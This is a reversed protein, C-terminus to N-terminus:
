ANELRISPRSLDSASPLSQVFDLGLGPTDRMRLVNGTQELPGIGALLGLSTFDADEVDEVATEGALTLALQGSVEMLLHPALRAPSAEVLGAIELFPTIGGVRVVNPQLIDAAGATLLDRFRHITHVNEGLAIPVDVAARLARYGATDDSRM